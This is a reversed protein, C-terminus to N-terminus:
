DITVDKGFWKESIKKFEGNERLEALGENIKEALKEDDKRVGVAFGEQAFTSNILNFQDLKNMKTLYYEAYVSDILVGDIRGTELDIFAENFSAYLTADNDKVMDQLVEPQETFIKYGSSGEQAGLVKDKMQDLSDIGSNKKTVLVQYSQMYMDSFLVKKKREDNVTYGNWIMDITGNDLETEKMAWDIPQFTVKTDTLDFVATALDVDFGTLEGNDDRFGMPVFTDDLGVVVEKKDAGSGVDEKKDGTGCAGLLLISVAMLLGTLKKM